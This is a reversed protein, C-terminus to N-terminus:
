EVPVAYEQRADAYTRIGKGAPLPQVIRETPKSGSKSGSSGAAGVFTAGDFAPYADEICDRLQSDNSKQEREADAQLADKKEAFGMRMSAEVWMVLKDINSDAVSVVFIHASEYEGREPYPGLITMPSANWAEADMGCYREASIWREMVWLGEAEPYKPLMHSRGSEDVVLRRRSDAAVIRYLPDGYPNQGYRSMSLGPWFVLSTDLAQM